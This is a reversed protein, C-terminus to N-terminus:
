LIGEDSFYFASNGFKVIKSLEALIKKKFEHSRGQHFWISTLKIEGACYGGRKRRRELFFNIDL